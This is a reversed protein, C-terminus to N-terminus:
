GETFTRGGLLLFSLLNQKAKKLAVKRANRLRSYNKVAEDQPTPVHVSSYTGFALHRALEQADLRDNKVRNGVAKPLTTPAMIVCPIGAQQLDRYLGYGTPGAEYGCVVDCGDHEQRIRGVYKIVLKSDSAVRNEGFNRNSSFHFASLSYSDKHVDIGIHIVTNMTVEM